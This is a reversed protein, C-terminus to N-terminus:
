DLSLNLGITALAPYIQHRILDRDKLLRVDTTVHVGRATLGGCLDSTKMPRDPIFRHHQHPHIWFYYGDCSNSSSLTSGETGAHVDDDRGYLIIDDIVQQSVM